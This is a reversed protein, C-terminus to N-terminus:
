VSKNSSKEQVIEKTFLIIIEAGKFKLLRSNKIKFYKLAKRVCEDKTYSITEWVYMPGVKVAYVRRKHVTLKIENSNSM